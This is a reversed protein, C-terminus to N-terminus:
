KRKAQVYWISPIQLVVPLQVVLWETKRRSREKRNRYGSTVKYIYGHIDNFQGDQFRDIAPLRMLLWNEDM